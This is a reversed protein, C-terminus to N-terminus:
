IVSENAYGIVKDLLQSYSIGASKAAKPFLSATTLGPITNIELVYLRKKSYIFDVRAFGRCGIIKYIKLSLESIEKALNESIKAPVIEESGGETYKSKYDFFKSMHPRIEIIPLAYPHKNGLIACTLEIGEIYKDVLLTDSYKFANKLGSKLEQLNDVKSMGVSSGQNHPKIFFPYSKLISTIKDISNDKNYEVYEPINIKNVKMLNRFIIKDMGIASASVRSGIYPIDFMELMGQICGDEGYKGHIVIFVVDPKLDILKKVNFKGSKGIVFPTVKYKSKDLNKVVQKGSNLSVEYESSKGGMLVLIHKKNM